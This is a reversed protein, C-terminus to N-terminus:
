NLDNIFIKTSLNWIEYKRFKELWSKDKHVENNLKFDSGQGMSSSDNNSISLKSSRPTAWHMTHGKKNRWSEFPIHIRSDLWCDYSRRTAEDTLVDKATQLLRFKELSEPEPNKDPHLQLARIKYERNIQEVKSSLNLNYLIYPLCICSNTLDIHKNYSLCKLLQTTSVSSSQHCGVIDYYNEKPRNYKLIEDINM